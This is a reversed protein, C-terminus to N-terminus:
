LFHIIIIKNITKKIIGNIRNLYVINLNNYVSVTM